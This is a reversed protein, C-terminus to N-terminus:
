HNPSWAKVALSWSYSGQDPFSLDWLGRLAAFSVFCFLFGVVKCKLLENKNIQTCGTKTTACPINLQLM